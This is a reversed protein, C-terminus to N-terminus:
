NKWALEEHQTWIGVMIKSLDQSKPVDLEVTLGSNAIQNQLCNIEEKHNNKMFFLEEKLAEIETELLLWTINTDNIVKQLGSINSKVSQCIARETEYEVRFDDAALCAARDTKLFIYSNDVSNAFIQGRLDEITKFYHGWHRIQPGKKGLHGQVKSQLRQNDAELRKVRELYSALCDNLCKMTEKESQIGGIGELGRAMGVALGRPGWNGQMSTFHSVSIQSGSARAGIFVSAM